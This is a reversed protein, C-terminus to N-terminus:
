GQNSRVPYTLYSTYSVGTLLASSRTARMVAAAPSTRSVGPIKALTRDEIRRLHSAQM